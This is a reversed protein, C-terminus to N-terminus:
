DLLDQLNYDAFIPHEPQEPEWLSEVDALDPALDRVIGPTQPPLRPVGEHDHHHDHGHSGALRALSIRPVRPPNMQIPLIQELAYRRNCERWFAQNRLTQQIERGVTCWNVPGQEYELITDHSMAYVGLPSTSAPSYDDHDVTIMIREINRLQSYVIMLSEELKERTCLSLWNVAVTKTDAVRQLPKTQYLELKETTEHDFYIIGNRGSIVEQGSADLSSSYAINYASTEQSNDFTIHLLSREHLQLESHGDGDEAAFVPCIITSENINRKHRETLM